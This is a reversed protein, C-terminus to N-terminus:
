TTPDPSGRTSQPSRVGPKEKTRKPECEPKSGREEVFVSLTARLHRFIGTFEKPELELIDCIEKHSCGAQLWAAVALQIRSCSALLQECDLRQEAEINGFSRDQVLEASSIPVFSPVTRQREPLGNASQRARRSRVRHPRTCRDKVRDFLRKLVRESDRYEQTKRNEGRFAALLEPTESLVVCLECEAEQLMEEKVSQDWGRQRCYHSCLHGLLESARWRINGIDDESDGDRDM